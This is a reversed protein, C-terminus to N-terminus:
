LVRTIALIQSTWKSDLKPLETRLQPAWPFDKWVRDATAQRGTRSLGSTRRSYFTEGERWTPSLTTKRGTKVWSITKNWKGALEKKKSTLSWSAVSQIQKKRKRRLTKCNKNLIKEIKKLRLKCLRCKIIVWTEWSMLRMRWHYIKEKFIRTNTKWISNRSRQIRSWFRMKNKLNNPRRRSESVKTRSKMNCVNTLSTCRRLRTKSNQKWHRSLSMTTKNLSTKPM